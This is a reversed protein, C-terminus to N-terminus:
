KVGRYKRILDLRNVTAKLFGFHVKVGDIDMEEANREIDRCANIITGLTERTLEDTKTIGEM